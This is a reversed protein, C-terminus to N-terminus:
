PATKKLSDHIWWYDQFMGKPSVDFGEEKAWLDLRHSGERWVSTPARPSSNTSFTTCTCLWSCQPACLQPGAPVACRQSAPLCIPSCFPKWPASFHPHGWHSPTLWSWTLSGLIQGSAWLRESAWTIAAPHSASFLGPLATHRCTNINLQSGPQSGSVVAWRQDSHGYFGKRESCGCLLWSADSAKM